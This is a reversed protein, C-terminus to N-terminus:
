PQHARLCQAMLRAGEALRPGPRVLMDSEEPSFSCVRQHAIADIGAWGPYLVPAAQHRTLLLMLSPNARVVFEPNLQPFPGLAAPVVNQVGLRALTEGIFSAESAAYSGRGVEIYVRARRSPAPLDQALRQVAEDATRSLALAAGPPTGLVQELVQLTRQVDAHTKPELALVRLGLSALRQRARSSVAILVLDPQLRVIAEINPELGSGVVSLQRVSAPFNAYEDVGVLRQCAGLACVSETLSPLLSVIRQPAQPAAVKQGLDDVVQWAHASTALSLCLSFVVLFCGDRWVRLAEVM